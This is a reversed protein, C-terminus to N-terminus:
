MLANGLAEHTANRIAAETALSGFQTKIKRRQAAELASRVEAQRQSRSLRPHFFQVSLVVRDGSDTEGDHVAAHEFSDDYLLVAGEAYRRSSGSLGPDGCRLDCPRDTKPALLCLHATLRLNTAGTDPALETGPGLASLVVEAVGLEAAERVADLSTLLGITRPCAAAAAETVGDGGARAVLVVEEMIMPFAGAVAGVVADALKPDPWAAAARLLSPASYVGPRQWADAWRCARRAAACGDIHREACLRAADMDSFDNQLAIMLELAADDSAADADLGASFHGVAVRAHRGDGTAERLAQALVGARVHPAADGAAAREAADRALDYAELHRPPAAELYCKTMFDMCQTKLHLSGSEPTEPAAYVAWAARWADFVAESRPGLGAPREGRAFADDHARQREGDDLTMACFAEFFRAHAHGAGLAPALKRADERARRVHADRKAATNHAGQVGFVAM